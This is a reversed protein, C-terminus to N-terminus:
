RRRKTKVRRFAKQMIEPDIDDLLDRIRTIAEDDNLTFDDGAIPLTKVLLDATRDFFKAVRRAKMADMELNVEKQRLLRERVLLLFKYTDHYARWLVAGGAGVNLSLRDPHPIEAKEVFRLRSGFREAQGIPDDYRTVCALCVM